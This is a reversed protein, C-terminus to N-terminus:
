SMMFVFGLLPGAETEPPPVWAPRFSDEVRSVLFPSVENEPVGLRTQCFGPLYPLPASLAIADSAVCLLLCVLFKWPIAEEEQIEEKGPCAAPSADLPTSCEAPSDPPRSNAV